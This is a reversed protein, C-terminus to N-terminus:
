PFEGSVSKEDYYKLWTKDIYPFGTKYNDSM